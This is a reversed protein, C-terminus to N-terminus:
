PFTRRIIEALFIAALLVVVLLSLVLLTGELLLRLAAPLVVLGFLVDHM